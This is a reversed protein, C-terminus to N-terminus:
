SLRKKELMTMSLGQVIDFAAALAVVVYWSSVGLGFQGAARTILWVGVFNLVFYYRMWETTSLLSGRTDEWYHFFPIAFAGILSLAAMSLFAAWNATLSMNGLVVNEPFFMNALLIVITNVLMLALFSFVVMIGANNMMGKATIKTM